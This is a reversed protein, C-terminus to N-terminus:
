SSGGPSRTMEALAGLFASPEAGFLGAIPSALQICIFITTGLVLGLAAMIVINVPRASIGALLPFGLALAAGIVSGVLLVNNFVDDNTAADIRARRADDIQRIDAMGQERAAQAVGGDVPLAAFASRLQDLIQDVQPDKEGKALMGWETDSVQVAYSRSLDQVHGRGPEPLVEVQWYADILADAEASASSDVDAGTQWAFVIYFALVVTFLAAVIGGVYSVSDSDYDGDIVETRRGFLFAAGAALLTPVAVLFVVGLLM